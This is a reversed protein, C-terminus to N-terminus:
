FCDCGTVSRIKRGWSHIEQLLLHDEIDDTQGSGDDDANPKQQHQQRLLPVFNGQSEDVAQLLLLALLMHLVESVGAHVQPASAPGIPCHRYRQSLSPRRKSARTHINQSYLLIKESGTCEFSLILESNPYTM